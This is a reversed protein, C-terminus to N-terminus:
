RPHLEEGMEEGMLSKSYLRYNSACKYLQLKVRVKATNSLPQLKVRVKATNSLPNQLLEIEMFSLNSAREFGIQISM